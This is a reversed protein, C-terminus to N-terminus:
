ATLAAEDVSLKRADADLTVTAGLPTTALHKGHGMPLNYIAPIGLPEFHMELVDEASYMLPADDNDDPWDCKHLEGVVVGIIGDLAGAQEMHTLLADIRPPSEYVDEFFFIKGDLDVEWPTGMSHSLLWLCGGAMQGTVQGPGLQRVYDDDPNRPVEGLPESSTLAKMLRDTTFEKTEPDNVGALGPGYFTILETHRAIAAHLATVDSCGVFPKPNAAIADFDLHPLMQAAGWGGQLCQVVDVGPDTFMRMLDKARAEADGAVWGTRDFVGEGLVVEYGRATWWEVGRLIESRAYYPSSPAPVGITAGPQLARGKLTM